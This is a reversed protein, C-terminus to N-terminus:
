LLTKSSNLTYLSIRGCDVLPVELWLALSAAMERVQQESHLGFLRVVGAQCILRVGFVSQNARGPSNAEYFEQRNFGGSHRSQSKGKIIRVVTAASKHIEITSDALAAVRSVERWGVVTIVAFALGFLKFDLGRQMLAIFACLASLGMAFMGTSYIYGGAQVQVRALESDEFSITADM